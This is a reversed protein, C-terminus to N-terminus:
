NNGGRPPDIISLTYVNTLLDRVSQHLEEETLEYAEALTIQHLLVEQAAWLAVKLDPSEMRKYLSEIDICNDTAKNANRKGM